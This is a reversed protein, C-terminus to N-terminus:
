EGLPDLPEPPELTPGLAKCVDTEGDCGCVNDGRDELTSSAGQHDSVAIDIASCFLDTAALSATAGFMAVAAREAARAESGDMSLTTLTGRFTVAYADGFGRSSAVVNEVLQGLVTAEGNTLSFGAEVAEAIRGYRLSVTPTAGSELSNQAVVGMGYSGDPRPVVRTVAVSELEGNAGLFLVGASVCDDVLSNRM